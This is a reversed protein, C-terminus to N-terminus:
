AEDGVRVESEAIVSRRHEVVVPLYQQDTAVIRRRGRCFDDIQTCLRRCPRYTRASPRREGAASRSSEERRYPQQDSASAASLAEVILGSRDKRRLEPIGHGTLEAREGARRLVASIVRRGDQQRISSDQGRATVVRLVRLHKRRGVEEFTRTRGDGGCRRADGVPLREEHGCGVRSRDRLRGPNPQRGCVWAKLM